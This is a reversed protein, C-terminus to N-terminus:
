RREKEVRKSTPSIIGVCQLSITKVRSNLAKTQNSSM